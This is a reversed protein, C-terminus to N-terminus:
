IIGQSWVLICLLSHQHVNSSGLFFSYHKMKDIPCLLHDPFLPGRYVQCGKVVDLCLFTLLVFLSSWLSWTTSFTVCDRRFFISTNNFHSPGSDFFNVLLMLPDLMLSGSLPSDRIQFHKSSQQPLGSIFSYVNLFLSLRNGLIDIFFRLISQSRSSKKFSDAFSFSCYAVSRDYQSEYEPTLGIM